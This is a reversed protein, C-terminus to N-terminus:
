VRIAKSSESIREEEIRKRTELEREKSLSAKLVADSVVGIKKLERNQDAERKANEYDAEVTAAGSRLSALASDIKAKTNHYEAEASRLDLDANLAEQEVQPNSLEMIVTDAKVPTGPLVVIREVRVDTEAPILRVDDPIPILSGLGRVQRLM